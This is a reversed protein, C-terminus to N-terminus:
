TLKVDKKKDRYAKYEDSYKKVTQIWYERCHFSMTVDRSAFMKKLDQFDAEDAVYPLVDPNPCHESWAEEWTIKDKSNEDAWGDYYRKVKPIDKTASM